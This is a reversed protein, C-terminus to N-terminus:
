SQDHFYRSIVDYDCYDIRKDEIAMYNDRGKGLILVLDNEEAIDLAYRIAEERNIIRIYNNKKEDGIMQDIISDVSEYRPDDMTFVVFDAHNLIYKGIKERKEKERGGAAGTLLITRKYKGKFSEVINKIGNLTHAYDLILKYNQGFDLSETRGKISPLNKIKQILYDSEIGELYCVIFAACLNYVNYEGIYPSTIHFTQDRYRIDFITIGMNEEINCIQFDSDQDKGYTYLHNFNKNLLLRCNDDDRNIIIAGDEKVLSALSLKSEIYNEITKHINLHDETITTFIAYRFQFDVVRKHLLAESSVEMVVDDYNENQLITLYKYLKENTPTTNETKIIKNGYEIGNTGMYAINRTEKLLEKLMIATTTKGDTGTIGIIKQNNHYEYFNICIQNLIGNVDPVKIIPIDGKYDVDTIVAAAGNNIADEIFESHSVNFGNVAVFLDGKKIERSDIKIDCIPTDYDCEILDCLRKM